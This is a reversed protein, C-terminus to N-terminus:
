KLEVADRAEQRADTRGMRTPDLPGMSAKRKELRLLTAFDLYDVRM